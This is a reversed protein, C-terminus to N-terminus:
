ATHFCVATGCRLMHIVVSFNDLSVTSLFIIAPFLQGCVLLVCVCVSSQYQKCKSLTVKRNINKFFFFFFYPLLHSSPGNPPNHPPKQASAINETMLTITKSTMKTIIDPTRGIFSWKRFIHKFDFTQSYSSTMKHNDLFPLVGLVRYWTMGPGLSWETPKCEWESVVPVLCLCLVLEFGQWLEASIGWGAADEIAPKQWAASPMTLAWFFVAMYGPEPISSGPGCLFFLSIRLPLLSWM